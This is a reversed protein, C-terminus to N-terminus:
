PIKTALNIANILPMIGEGGNQSLMFEPYCGEDALKKFQEKAWKCAALLEDAVKKDVYEGTQDNSKSVKYGLASDYGMIFAAEENEDYGQKKSIEKLRCDRNEYNHLEDQEYKNLLNCVKEALAEQGKSFLVVEKGDITLLARKQKKGLKYIDKRM